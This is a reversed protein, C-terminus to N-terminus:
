EDPAEEVAYYVTGKMGEWEGMEGKAPYCDELCELSEGCTILDGFGCGCEGPSCLGDGGVSKIWDIVAQIEKERYKEIFEHVTKM